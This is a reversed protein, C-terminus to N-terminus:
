RMSAQKRPPLATCLGAAGAGVILVPVHADFKQADFKEGGAIVASM